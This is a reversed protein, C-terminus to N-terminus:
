RKPLRAEIWATADAVVQAADLDFLLQHYGESYHFHTKDRAHIKEFFERTQGALVFGDHGASFVAVPLDLEAAAPLAAEILDGMCVLFKATVPGLRHPATEVAHQREPIRTLQLPGTNGNVFWDSKIRLGPAVTAVARLLSKMWHPNKQALGVVPVCLLLGALRRRWEARAAAQIALLSGMSDGCLFLPLGENFSQATFEELDALMGELDLWAGRRSVVPDLGQGRLNWAALGIGRASLAEGLPAFDEARCGLGHLAVIGARPTAQPCWRVCGLRSGDPATWIEPRGTESM